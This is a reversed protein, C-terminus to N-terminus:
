NRGVVQQVLKKPLKGSSQFQRMHLIPECGLDAISHGSLMSTNFRQSEYTSLLFAKSTDVLHCVKLLSDLSNMKMYPCSACGGHISCGEGSSVGPVISLKTLNTSGNSELDGSSQPESMSDSSVPFIIEVEVKARRVDKLANRVAAVIATVMGSETGLIFQLHEDIDAVLEMGAAGDSLSSIRSSELTSGRRRQQERKKAELKM